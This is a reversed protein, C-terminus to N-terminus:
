SAVYGTALQNLLNTTPGDFEYLRVDSVPSRQDYLGALVWKVALKATPLFRRYKADVHDVDDGFGVRYVVRVADERQEDTVPWVGSNLTIAPLNGGQLTWEGPPMEVYQASGAPVYELSVVERVPARLLPLPHPRYHSYSGPFWGYTLKVTTTLFYRGCRDECMSQAVPILSEIYEDEHGSTQRIHAKAEDLTIVCGASSEVIEYSFPVDIM